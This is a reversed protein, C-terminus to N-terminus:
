GISLFLNTLLLKANASKPLQAQAESIHQSLEYFKRTTTENKKKASHRLGNVVVRELGLLLLALQEKDKSLSDVLLLREYTNKQLVTKAEKIAGVLQHDSSETLLNTMLGARGDSMHYATQIAKPDHGMQQFYERASMEDVPLVLLLQARSRITHKLATIDNVTLVIMTDAPPEELTKLLANQAEATMLHANKIFVARRVAAKGTTKRSLFDRIDRIAEIGISRDATIELFYPNNQPKKGTVAQIFYHALSTKGTGSNGSVLVAHPAAQTLAHLQYATTPHLLLDSMSRWCKM